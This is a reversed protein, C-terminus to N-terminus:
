SRKARAWSHHALVQRWAERFVEEKPAVGDLPVFDNGASLEAFATEVSALFDPNDGVGPRSRTSVRQLAVAVPVRLWFTLDPRPLTEFLGQFGELDQGFVKQNALHSWLYRDCVVAEGAQLAPVARRHVESALAYSFYSSLFDADDSEATRGSSAVAAMALRVGAVFDADGKLPSLALSNVGEAAINAALQHALTSKGSGDIGCVAILFGQGIPKLNPARLKKM